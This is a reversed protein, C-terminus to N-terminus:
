SIEVMRSGHNKYLWEIFCKVKEETYAEIKDVDLAEDGRLFAKNEWELNYDAAKQLSPDQSEEERNAPAIFCKDYPPNHARIYQSVHVLIGGLEEKLWYAEDREYENYRIDTICNITSEKQGLDEIVKQLKNIWHRGRSTDRKLKGHTVLLPRIMDKEERSCTLANINYHHITFGNLEEKLSDALALRRAHIGRKKIQKKFIQFFFDKGAGAVGSIGISINKKVM